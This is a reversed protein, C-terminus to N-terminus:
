LKTILKDTYLIHNEIWNVVFELIELLYADQDKDINDLNVNKIKEIFKNHEIKHTFLKKYGIEQMYNEEANFHFITYEKLEELIKIIKDYKDICFENKLVDYADNAIKFLHKHQSDIKDVGIVFDDKWDIM